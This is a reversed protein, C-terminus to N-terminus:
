YNRIASVDKADVQLFHGDNKIKKEKNRQKKRNEDYVKERACFSAHAGQSLFKRLIQM